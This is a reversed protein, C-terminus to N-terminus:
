LWDRRQKRLLCAHHKLRRYCLAFSDACNKRVEFHGAYMKPCAVLVIFAQNNFHSIDAGMPDIVTKFRDVTSTNIRAVVAREGELVSDIQAEFARIIEVNM